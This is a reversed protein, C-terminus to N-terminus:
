PRHKKRADRWETFAFYLWLAVIVFVAETTSKM